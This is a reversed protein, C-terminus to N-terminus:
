MMRPNCRMKQLGIPWIIVRRRHAKLFSARGIAMNMSDESSWNRFLLGLSRLHELEMYWVYLEYGFTLHFCEVSLIDFLQWRKYNFSVQFVCSWLKRVSRFGSIYLKGSAWVETLFCIKNGITFKMCKLVEAPSYHYEEQLSLKMSRIPSWWVWVGYVLFEM